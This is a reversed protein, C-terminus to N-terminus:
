SYENILYKFDVLLAKPDDELIMDIKRLLSANAHNEGIISNVENIIESSDVIGLAGLLRNIIIRNKEEREFNKKLEIYEEIVRRVWKWVQQPSPSPHFTGEPSLEKVLKELKEELDGSKSLKKLKKVHPIIENLNQLKLTDLLDMFLINLTSVSPFEGLPLSHLERDRIISQRSRDRSQSKSRSNSSRNNVKEKLEKILCDKEKLEKFTPRSDLLMSLNENAETLEKIKEQLKFM